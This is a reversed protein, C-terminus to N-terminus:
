TQISTESLSCCLQRPLNCYRRFYFLFFRIQSKKSWLCLRCKVSVNEKLRHEYILSEWLGQFERNPLMWHNSAAVEDGSRNGSNQTLLIIRRVNSKDMTLHLYSHSMCIQHKGWNDWNWRPSRHGHFWHIGHTGTVDTDAFLAVIAHTLQIPVIQVFMDFIIYWLMAALHSKKWMRGSSNTTSSIKANLENPFQMWAM